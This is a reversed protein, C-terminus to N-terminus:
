FLFLSFFILYGVRKFVFYDENWMPHPAAGKKKTVQRRVTDAPLGYMEAEVVLNTRKETLFLGSIVKLSVSNGCGVIISCCVKIRLRCPVIDEIKKQVFPNFGKDACM